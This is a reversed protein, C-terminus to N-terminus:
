RTGAFVFGINSATADPTAPAVLAFLDGAALSQATGGSSVFTASSGSAAITATGISSGNKQIDIAMSATATTGRLKLYCGAFNAAFTVAQAVPVSVLVQSATPVGPVYGSPNYPESVWLPDGSTGQTQLFQGATGAGLAAWASSGRYLTMGRTSGFIHDLIATLTDALPTSSGGSINALITSDAQAPIDTLALTVAGVRGFVSTVETSNGDIKDWATGDYLLLDGVIWSSNGDVTTTGATAVKYFWGLTGSGSTITPSNTNANWTGKYVMGGVIGAIATAVFATSAGKTSNDSSTQTGVIPNSLTPGTALVVTSGSGTTTAAILQNSGNTAVAAASTPVVAGNIQDVTPDPYTGSLDGGATGSPPAGGGIATVVFATTALQTTNTGSTATPAAPVGTFPPSALPAAGSVDAVALTVVGTRGAVSLVENTIGDIKDWTSGDFVISDGVNWVAIGDISTTGATAVKYFTGKSGTSSVLTPTNATADWTGAYDMAGTVASPLQAVPVKGTGDLSAVGNASGIPVAIPTAASGTNNGIVSNAALNAMKALTVAAANIILSQFTGSVDGGPVVPGLATITGFASGTWVVSYAAGSASSVISPVGTPDILIYYTGATQGSFNLATATGKYVIAGLDARWFYGSTLTMTTSATSENYSTSGIFAPVSGFLAQLFPGSSVGTVAIASQLANIALTIAANDSNLQAIYNIDGNTYDTLPGFTM